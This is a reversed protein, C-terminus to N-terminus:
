KDFTSSETLIKKVEGLNNILKLDGGIDLWLVVANQGSNEFSIQARATHDASYPSKLCIPSGLFSGTSVGINKTFTLKGSTKDTANKKLTNNELNQAKTNYVIFVLIRAKQSGKIM